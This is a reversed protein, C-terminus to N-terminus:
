KKQTLVHIKVTKTDGKRNTASLRIFTRNPTNTLKLNSKITLNFSWCIGPIPHTIAAAKQSNTRTFRVPNSGQPNLKDLWKVKLNIKASGKQTTATVIVELLAGQFFDALSIPVAKGSSSPGRTPSSSVILSIIRGM